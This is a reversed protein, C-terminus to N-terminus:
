FNPKYKALLEKMNIFEREEQAPTKTPALYGLLGTAICEDYNTVVFVPPYKTDDVYGEVKPKIKEEKEKAM